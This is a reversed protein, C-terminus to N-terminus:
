GRKLKRPVPIKHSYAGLSSKYNVDQMFDYLYQCSLSKWEGALPNSGNNNTVVCEAIHFWTIVSMSWMIQSNECLIPKM